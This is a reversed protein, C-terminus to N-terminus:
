GLRRRRPKGLKAAAAEMASVRALQRECWNARDVAM